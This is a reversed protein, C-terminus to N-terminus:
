DPDEPQYRREPDLLRGWFNNFPHVLDTAEGTPTELPRDENAWAFISGVLNRVPIGSSEELG